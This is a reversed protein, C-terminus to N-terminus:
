GTTEDNRLQVGIGIKWEELILRFYLLEELPFGFNSMIFAQGLSFAGPHLGLAAQWM